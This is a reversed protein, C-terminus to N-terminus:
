EALLNWCRGHGPHSRDRVVSGGSLLRGGCVLLGALGATVSAEVVAMAVVALPDVVRGSLASCVLPSAVRWLLAVVFVIATVSVVGRSRSNSKVVQLGWGIAAALSMQVGLREPSLGDLLLGLFASWAIAAAGESWFGIVVLTLAPLFPRCNPPLEGVIASSQLAVALYISCAIFVQRM